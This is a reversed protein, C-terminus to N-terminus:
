ITDTDRAELHTLFRGRDPGERKSFLDPSFVLKSGTEQTAWEAVDRRRHALKGVNCLDNLFLHAESKTEVTGSKKKNEDLSNHHDNDAISSGISQEQELAM